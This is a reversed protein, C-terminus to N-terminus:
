VTSASTSPAEHVCRSSNPVVSHERDSECSARRQVARFASEITEFHRMDFATDLGSTQRSCRDETSVQFPDDHLADTGKLVLDVRKCVGPDTCVTKRKIRYKPGSSQPFRHTCNQSPEVDTRSPKCTATSPQMNAGFFMAEDGSEDDDSMAVFAQSGDARSAEYYLRTQGPM